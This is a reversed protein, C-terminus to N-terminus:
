RVERKVRYSRLSLVAVITAVCLLLPRAAVPDVAACSLPLGALIVVKGDVERL